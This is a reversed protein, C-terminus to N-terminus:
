KSIWHSLLRELKPEPTTTVEECRRSIWRSVPKILRKQLIRVTSKKGRPSKKARFDGTCGKLLESPREEEQAKKLKETKKSILVRQECEKRCGQL